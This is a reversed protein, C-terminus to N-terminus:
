SCISDTFSYSINANSSLNQELKLMDLKVVYKFADLHAEAQICNPPNFM